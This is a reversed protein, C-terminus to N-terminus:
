KNYNELLDELTDNCDFPPTYDVPVSSMWYDLTTSTRDREDSLLSLTRKIQSRDFDVQYTKKVDYQYRTQNGEANMTYDYAVSHVERNKGRLMRKLTDIAQNRCKNALLVADMDKCHLMKAQNIAIALAERENCVDLLFRVVKDPKVDIGRDSLNDKVEDVAGAVANSRMHEETILMYNDVVSLHNTISGILESLFNQYRFAEKLTMSM